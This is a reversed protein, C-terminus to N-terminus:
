TKLSFADFLHLTTSVRGRASSVVDAGCGELGALFGLLLDCNDTFFLMSGSGMFPM